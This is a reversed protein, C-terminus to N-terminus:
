ILDDFKTVIDKIISENFNNLLAGSAHIHGGGGYYTAIDHVNYIKSRFEVRMSHDVCEIFFIWIPYGEIDSLLNVFEGAVTSTLDYKSLIEQTLKLYIVGKKSTQYHTYVYGKFGVDLLDVSNVTSIVEEIESGLEVLSKATYFSRAFDKSFAFRNTDTIVGLLLSNCVNKNFVFDLSSFIDFLIECTSSANSDIYKLYDGDDSDSHHDIRILSPCLSYRKDEVRSLEGCDVVIGLSYSIVDNSILDMEGLFDNYSLVGSGVAYVKKSPFNEKLIYKLALQAGVCDGDPNIHGFIVISDFDNIYNLFDIYM